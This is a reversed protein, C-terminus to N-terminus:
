YANQLLDSAAGGLGDALNQKEDKNTKRYLFFHGVAFLVKVSVEALSVGM